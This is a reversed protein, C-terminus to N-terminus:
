RGASGNALTTLLDGDVPTAGDLYRDITSTAWAVVDQEDSEILAREAGTQNAIGVHVLSDDHVAVIFPVPRDSRWISVNPATLMDTLAENSAPQAALADLTEDDTVVVLELTGETTRRHLVELTEPASANTLLRVTRSSELQQVAPRLPAFPDRVTPTYVTSDALRRLDLSLETPLLPCVEALKEAAEMTDLLEDFTATIMDGIPTTRYTGNTRRIWGREQFDSLVRGLTVRGVGTQEQLSSRDHESRALARLVSVRNESRALFAVDALPSGM